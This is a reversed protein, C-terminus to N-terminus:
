MNVLPASKIYIFGGRVSIETHINKSKHEPTISKLFVRVKEALAKRSGTGQLHLQQVTSPLIKCCRDVLHHYLDIRLFLLM